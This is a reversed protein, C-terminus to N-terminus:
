ISEEKIKIYRHNKKLINKEIAQNKIRGLILMVTVTAFAMFICTTMSTYKLYLATTFIATETFLLRITQKKFFIQEKETFPKNKDEIPALIIILIFATVMGFCCIRQSTSFFRIALLIATILIVSFFYCRRPTQAHYGGAYIRLPIYAAFYLIVEPVSDLMVGILLATLLNFLIVTGQHMGYCYLEKNEPAIIGTEIFHDCLKLCIKQIM